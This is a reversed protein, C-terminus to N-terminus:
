TREVKVIKEQISPNSALISELEDQTACPGNWSKRTQLLKKNYDKRKLSLFLKQQIREIQLEKQKANWEKERSELVKRLKRAVQDVEGKSAKYLTM